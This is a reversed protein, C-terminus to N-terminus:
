PFRLSADVCIKPNILDAKRADTANHNPVRKNFWVFFLLSCLGGEHHYVPLLYSNM